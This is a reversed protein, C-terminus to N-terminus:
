PPSRARRPRPRYGAGGHRRGVARRRLIPACPDLTLEARVPVELLGQDRPGELPDIDLREVRRRPSRRPREGAGHGWHSASPGDGLAGVVGRGLLRVLVQQGVEGAAGASAEDLRCAGIAADLQLPDMVEVLEEIPDEELGDRDGEARVPSRERERGLERGEAYLTVDRGFRHLSVQAHVGERGERGLARQGSVEGVRPALGALECPVGGEVHPTGAGEGDVGGRPISGSPVRDLLEPVGERRVRFHEAPQGRGAHARLVGVGLEDPAEVHPVVQERLDGLETGQPEEVGLDEAGEARDFGGREHEVGGRRGPSECPAIVPGVHQPGGEAGEGGGDPARVQDRGEGVVLGEARGAGESPTVRPVDLEDERPLRAEVVHSVGRPAGIGELRPGVGEGAPRPVQHLADLGFAPEAQRQGSPGHVLGQSARPLGQDLLEGGTSAGDDSDGDEGGGRVGLSGLMVGEHVGAAVGAARAEGRAAVDDESGHVVHGM